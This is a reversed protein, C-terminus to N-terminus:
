IVGRTAAKSWRRFKLLENYLKMQSIGRIAGTIVFAANYQISEIKQFLSENNPQNYLLDGYDLYPRVFAKPAGDMGLSSRLVDNRRKHTPLNEREM